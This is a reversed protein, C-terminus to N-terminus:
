GYTSLITELQPLLEPSIRQRLINLQEENLSLLIQVDPMVTIMPISEPSPNVQQVEVWSVTQEDWIYKKGDNPYEVPALFTCKEEDFVWSPFGNQAWDEKVQNQKEIREAETFEYIHHFDKVKNGEWEYTVGDYRQYPGLFAPPGMRIFEAFEPPLNNLDIEPFALIFNDEMIPHEFPKGDKIRIFLRM